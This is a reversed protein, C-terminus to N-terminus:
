EKLGKEIDLLGAAKIISKYEEVADKALSKFHEAELELADQLLTEINKVIVKELFMKLQNPIDHYDKDSNTVHHHLTVKNLNLSHIRTVFDGTCGNKVTLGKAIEAWKASAVMNDKANLCLDIKSM